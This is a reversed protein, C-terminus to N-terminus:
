GLIERVRSVVASPSFPKTIYEDVGLARGREEDLAEGKATLM